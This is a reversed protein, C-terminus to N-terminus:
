PLPKLSPLASIRNFDFRGKDDGSIKRWRFFQFISQMKGRLPYFEKVQPYLGEGRRGFVSSNMLDCVRDASIASRDRDRRPLRFHQRQGGRRVKSAAMFSGEGM